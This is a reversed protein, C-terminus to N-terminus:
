RDRACRDSPTTLRVPAVEKCASEANDM